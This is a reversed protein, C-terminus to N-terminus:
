MDYSNSKNLNIYSILLFGCVDYIMDIFIFRSRLYGVILKTVKKELQELAARRAVVRESKTSTQTMKSQEFEEAIIDPDVSIFKKIMLLMIKHTALIKDTMGKKYQLTSIRKLRENGGIRDLHSRIDKEIEVLNAAERLQTCALVWSICTIFM